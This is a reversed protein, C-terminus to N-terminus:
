ALRGVVQGGYCGRVPRGSVLFGAWLREWPDTPVGPGRRRGVVEQASGGGAERAADLRQGVPRWGDPRRGVEVPVGRRVLAAAHLRPLPGRVRQGACPSPSPCTSISPAATRVRSRRAQCMLDYAVPWASTDGQDNGQGAKGTGWPTCHCNPRSQYGVSTLLVPRGSANAVAEIQPLWQQWAATLADPTPPVGIATPSGLPWYASHGIYDVAPWWSIAGLTSGTSSATLAGPFVARVAAILSLM